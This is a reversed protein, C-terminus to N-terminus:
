RTGCDLSAAHQLRTQLMADEFGVVCGGVRVARCPAALCHVMGVIVTANRTNRSLTPGVIQDVTLRQFRIWDERM